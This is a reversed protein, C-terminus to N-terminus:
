AKRVEVNPFLRKVAVPMALPTFRSWHAELKEDTMAVGVFRELIEDYAESLRTSSPDLGTVVVSGTPRVDVPTLVLDPRYEGLVWLLKWVDGTWWGAIAKDQRQEPRHEREAMEVNLPLCDDLLILSEPACVRETNIFDRLLFEFLHLGDLFAVDVPGGFVARPDHDRFYDDSTLQYLHLSAKSGMPNRDFVMKPDVGISPCEVLALSSGNHVGIELYSRARRLLTVLRVFDRYPAGTLSKRTTAPPPQADTM